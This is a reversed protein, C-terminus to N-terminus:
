FILIHRQDMVSVAVCQHSPHAPSKTDLMARQRDRAASHKHLLGEIMLSSGFSSQHVQVRCLLPCHQALGPSRVQWWPEEGKAEWVDAVGAVFQQRVYSGHPMHRRCTEKYGTLVSRSTEATSRQKRTENKWGKPRLKKKGTAM